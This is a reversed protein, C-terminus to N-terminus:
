LNSTEGSSGESAHVSFQRQTEALAMGVAVSANYSADATTQPLHVLEDCLKSTGKRMGRDESGVIWVVKQPLNLSYLSQRSTGELGFVWYGKEKLDKIVGEFHSTSIVPVHEVGGSAIKHVTPTLGVSRDQPIYICDVGVLWSTRLIAGLNQPDELGDLILIISRDKPVERFEPSGDVYLLAGQNSSFTKDLSGRSRTQIQLRLKEAVQKIEVLEESTEFDERLILVKCQRGHVKMAERLAHNGGVLRWTKPFRTADSERDETRPASPRPGKPHGHGSKLFSAPSGRLSRRPKSNEFRSSSPNSPRKNKM